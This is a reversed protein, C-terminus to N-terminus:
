RRVIGITIIGAGDPVVALPWSGALGVALTGAAVTVAPNGNLISRPGYKRFGASRM